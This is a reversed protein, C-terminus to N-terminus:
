VLLKYFGPRRDRIVDNYPNIMKNDARAPDIDILDLCPSDASAFSLVEGDCSTIQSGGTFRNEEEGRKETGVRNATVAFIRNEICRTQMAQQCWPMVINAPHAIVQTGQLALIRSVEPFIWDFCIMVGIKCGNIDYVKLPSNGPTFFLKEKNFLHLKRYTGLIKGASVILSSNYYSDGEREIFGAVIMAGTDISKQCLYRSTTDDVNESLGAVEEISTFTYGTAFLEPFVILDAKIAMLPDDVAALNKHKEGFIPSNQIYGVRM